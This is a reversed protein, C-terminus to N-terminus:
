CYFFAIEKVIRADSETIAGSLFPHLEALIGKAPIAPRAVLSLLKAKTVDESAYGNILNTLNTRLEDPTM